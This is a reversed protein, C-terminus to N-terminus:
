PVRLSGPSHSASRLETALHMGQAHYQFPVAGAMDVTGIPKDDSWTYTSSFWQSGNHFLLSVPRQCCCCQGLQFRVPPDLELACVLAADRLPFFQVGLVALCDEIGEGTGFQCALLEHLHHQLEDTGSVRLVKREHVLANQLIADEACFLVNPGLM